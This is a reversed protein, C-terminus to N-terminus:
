RKAMKGNQLHHVLHFSLLLVKHVGDLRQWARAGESGQVLIQQEQFSGGGGGEAAKPLAEVQELLTHLLHALGAM